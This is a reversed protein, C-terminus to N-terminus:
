LTVRTRNGTFNSLVRKAETIHITISNVTISNTAFGCVRDREEIVRRVGFFHPTFKKLNPELNTKILAKIKLEKQLMKWCKLLSDLM